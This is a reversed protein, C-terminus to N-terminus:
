LSLTRGRWESVEFGELAAPSSSDFLDGQEAIAPIASSSPPPPPSPLTWLLAFYPPPASCVATGVSGCPNTSSHKGPRTQIKLSACM